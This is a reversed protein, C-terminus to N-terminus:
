KELIHLHELSHLGVLGAARELTQDVDSGIRSLQLGASNEVVHDLGLAIISRHVSGHGRLPRVRIGGSQCVRTDTNAHAVSAGRKVGSEYADVQFSLTYPSCIVVISDSARVGQYRASLRVCHFVSSAELM